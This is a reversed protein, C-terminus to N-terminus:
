DLQLVGCGIREGSNGSPDTRQDDSLAHVIISAGDTDLLGSNGRLEGRAIDAKLKGDGKRNIFLNPLDGSHTGAPNNYGHQRNTPNWHPGASMFAPGECRGFTHIHAAREGPKQNRVTVTVILGRKKSQSVKAKGIPVGSSDIITASASERGIGVIEKSIAPTAVLAMGIAIGLKVRM